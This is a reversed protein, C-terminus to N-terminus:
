LDRIVLIYYDLDLPLSYDRKIYTRNEKYYVIKILFIIKEEPKFFICM